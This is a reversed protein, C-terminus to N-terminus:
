SLIEGEVKCDGYFNILAVSPNCKYQRQIVEQLDRCYKKQDQRAQGRRKPTYYVVVLMARRRHEAVMEVTYKRGGDLDLFGAPPAQVRIYRRFFWTALTERARLEPFPAGLCNLRPALQLQNFEPRFTRYGWRDPPYVACLLPHLLLSNLSTTLM